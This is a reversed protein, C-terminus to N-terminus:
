FNWPQDNEWQRKLEEIEQTWKREDEETVVYPGSLGDPGNIITGEEIPDLNIGAIAQGGGVSARIAADSAKAQRYALTAQEQLEYYKTPLNNSRYYRQNYIPMADEAIKGGIKEIQEEFKTKEAEADHRNQALRQWEDSAERYKNAAQEYLRVVEVREDRLPMDRELRTKADFARASLYLNRNVLGPRSADISELYKDAIESTENDLADKAKTLIFVASRLERIRSDFDSNSIVRSDRDFGLCTQAIREILSKKFEHEARMKQIEEAYQGVIDRLKNKRRERIKGNVSPIDNASLQQETVQIKDIKQFAQSSAEAAQFCHAIIPFLLHQQETKKERALRLAEQNYKIGRQSWLGYATCSDNILQTKESNLIALNSNIIEEVAEYKENWERVTKEADNIKRGLEEPAFDSRPGINSPGVHHASEVHPHEDHFIFDMPLAILSTDLLFITIIVSILRLFKKKM